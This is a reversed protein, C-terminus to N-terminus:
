QWRRCEGWWMERAEHPWIQLKNKHHTSLVLVAKWRELKYYKWFLCSVDCEMAGSERWKQRSRQGLRVGPGRFWPITHPSSAYRRQCKSKKDCQVVLSTNLFNLQHNVANKNHKKQIYYFSDWWSMLGCFSWSVTLYLLLPHHHTSPKPPSIPKLSLFWVVIWMASYINRLMHAVWGCLLWNPTLPISKNLHNTMFHSCFDVTM